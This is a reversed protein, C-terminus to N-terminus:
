AQCPLVSKESTQRLRNLYVLARAAPTSRRVVKAILNQVASLKAPVPVCRGGRVLYSVRGLLESESVPRDPLLLADGQTVWQPNESDGAKAIVRHACLRGERKVLVVDGIRVQDRAVREVVLTEGPWLSPLMSWGTATFRLKGFTRLVDSALDCKLISEADSDARGFRKM